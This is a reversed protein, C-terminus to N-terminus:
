DDDAVVKANSGTGNWRDQDYGARAHPKSNRGANCVLPRHPCDRRVGDPDPGRNTARGHGYEFEGRTIKFGCERCVGTHTDCTCPVLHDPYEGAPYTARRICDTAANDRAPVGEPLRDLEQDTLKM